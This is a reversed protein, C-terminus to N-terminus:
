FTPMIKNDDNEILLAALTRIMMQQLQSEHSMKPMSNNGSADKDGNIQFFDKNIDM